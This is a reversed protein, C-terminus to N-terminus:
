AAAGEFPRMARAIRHVTGTGVGLEKATALPGFRVNRNTGPHCDALCSYDHGHWGGCHILHNSRVHTLLARAASSIPTMPSGNSNRRRILFFSLWYILGGLVISHEIVKARKEDQAWGNREEAPGDHYQCRPDLALALFGVALTKGLRLATRQRV